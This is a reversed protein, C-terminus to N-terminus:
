FHRVQAAPCGPCVDALGSCNEGFCTVHGFGPCSTLLLQPNGRFIRDYRAKAHSVPGVTFIKRSSGFIKNNKTRYWKIHPKCIVLKM